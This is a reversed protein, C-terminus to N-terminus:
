TFEETGFSLDPPGVGNPSCCARSGDIRIRVRDLAGHGERVQPLGGVVHPREADKAGLSQRCHYAIERHRLQMEVVSKLFAVFENGGV